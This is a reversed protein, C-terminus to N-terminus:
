TDFDFDRSSGQEFWLREQEPTDGPIDTELIHEVPGVPASGHNTEENLVARMDLEATEQGVSSSGQADDAQADDAAVNDQESTQAHHGMPAVDEDAPEDLYEPARVDGVASAPGDGRDPGFAEHEERAVLGPDAGRLRKLELHERIADDLLGMRRCVMSRRDESM